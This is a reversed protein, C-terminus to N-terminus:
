WISDKSQIHVAVHKNLNSVTQVPQYWLIPWTIQIRQKRESTLENNAIVAIINDTDLNSL